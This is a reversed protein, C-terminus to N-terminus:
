KSRNQIVHCHFGAIGSAVPFDNRMVDKLTVEKDKAKFEVLWSNDAAQYCQTFTYCYKILGKDQKSSLITPSHIVIALIKTYTGGKM